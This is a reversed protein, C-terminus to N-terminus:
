SRGKLLKQKITGLFSRTEYTKKYWEVDQNLRDIDNLLKNILQRNGEANRSCEALKQNLVIITEVKEESLANLRRIEQEHIDITRQKAAIEADLKQEISDLSQQIDGPADAENLFHSDIKIVPKM